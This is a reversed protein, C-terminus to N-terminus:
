AAKRGDKDSLTVEGEFTLYRRDMWEESTEMALATVLRLCSDRDPFIRIVKTRRKLEQNYRELMNTSRLKRRHAQPLQFVSLIEEGHDELLRAVKPYRKELEAVAENTRKRASQADPADIIQKVSQLVSARDKISVQSLINRVFHVACRQWMSGQFHREIAKRLGIHDDSVVYKVGSLGREKLEKFADSWSTENESDCVWTGLIERFGDDRIGVVLFVGQSLVQRNIRVKEYRADIMLYPYSQGALDRKRWSNLEDDLGKTLNSVQSKSINLGCLEETIKKVKRTSVGQLYMQMVGLMLAKESRQYREFLETQFRGDRDKPVMLEMTGLRTKLMRPKYGNRYGNRSETREHPDAGIFATLEEELVRQLINGLLVKLGDEGRGSAEQWIELMRMDDTKRAM